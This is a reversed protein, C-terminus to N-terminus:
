RRVVVEPIPTGKLRLGVAVLGVIVVVMGVFVRKM